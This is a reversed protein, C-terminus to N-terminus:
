TNTLKLVNTESTVPELPRAASYAGDNDIDITEPRQIAVESSSPMSLSKDETQTIIEDQLTTQPSHESGITQSQHVYLNSFADCM